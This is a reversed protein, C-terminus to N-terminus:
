LFCPIRSTYNPPPHECIVQTKFGHDHSNEDKKVGWLKKVAVSDGNSLTARYVKGSGGSGILNAEDLETVEYEHYGESQFSTLIWSDETDEYESLERGKFGIKYRRICLCSVTM